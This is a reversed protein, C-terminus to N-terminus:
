MRVRSLDNVNFDVEDDDDSEEDDDNSDASGSDSYKIPHKLRASSIDTQTMIRRARIQM